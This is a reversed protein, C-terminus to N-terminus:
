KNSHINRKVGNIDCAYFIGNEIYLGEFEDRIEYDQNVGFVKGDYLVAISDKVTHGVVINTVNYYDLLSDIEVMTAQKYRKMDYHYGRYWIPGFSGFLNSLTSDAKISDRPTDINERMSNNIFELLYGKHMMKPSIGAHVFLIGNIIECTNKSRLWNGLVTKNSYLNSLLSDSDLIEATIKYRENIYRLDGQLVMMEHNGLLFHVEGGAKEAEQELRYIMWLIETVKDGRDFMDGDVVLHGEGFSWHLNSDIINNNILLECLYEYEGHIDSFVFMKSVTEYQYDPVHYQTSVKYNSLSDFAFGNFDILVNGFFHKEVLVGHNVYQVNITSDDIYSVYPGDNIEEVKLPVQLTDSAYTSSTLILIILIIYYKKM